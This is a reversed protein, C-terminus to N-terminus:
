NGLVGLMKEANAALVDPAEMSGSHRKLSVGEFRPILHFHLHHVTQGAAPENFQEIMVGDADFAKVAAKAVLQVTQILTALDDPAIDLLNRAPAKPIVVCHGEGRPMIDMFAFSHDDEYIRHAPLDGRLIKAFINDPDYAATM